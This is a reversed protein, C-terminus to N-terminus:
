KGKVRSILQEVEELGKGLDVCLSLLYMKTKQSANFKEDLEKDIYEDDYESETKNTGLTHITKHCNPCLLMVNSETNLGNKSLPKIHHIQLIPLFNNKCIECEGIKRLLENKLKTTKIETEITTLDNSLQLENM